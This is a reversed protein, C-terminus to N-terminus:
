VSAPIGIGPRAVHHELRSVALMRRPMHNMRIVFFPRAEIANRVDQTENRILLTLVLQDFQGLSRVLLFIVTTSGQLSNAHYRLFVLNSCIEAHQLTISCREVSASNQAAHRVGTMETRFPLSRM